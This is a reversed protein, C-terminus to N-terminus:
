LGSRVLIEIIHKKMYVDKNDINAIIVGSSNVSADNWIWVYPNRSTSPDHRKEVKRKLYPDRKSQRPWASNSTAETSILQIIRRRENDRLGM